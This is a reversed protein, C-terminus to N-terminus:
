GDVAGSHIHLNQLRLLGRSPPRIRENDHTSAQRVLRRRRNEDLEQSLVYGYAAHGHRIGSEKM